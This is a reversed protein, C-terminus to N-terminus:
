TPHMGDSDNVSDLPPPTFPVVGSGLEATNNPEPSRLTTATSRRLIRHADHIALCFDATNRIYLALLQEGSAPNLGAEHIERHGFVELSQWQAQQEDGADRCGAYRIRLDERDKMVEGSAVVPVIGGLAQNHIAAASQIAASTKSTDVM